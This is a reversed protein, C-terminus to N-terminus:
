IKSKDATKTKTIDVGFGKVLKLRRYLHISMELIQVRTSFFYNRHEEGNLFSFTFM